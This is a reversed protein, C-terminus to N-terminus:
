ILCGFSLAAVGMSTGLETFKTMLLQDMIIYFDLLVRFKGPCDGGIGFAEHCAGLSGFRAILRASFQADPMIRNAGLLNVEVPNFSVDVGNALKM